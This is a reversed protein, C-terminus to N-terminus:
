PHGQLTPHASLYTCALIPSVYKSHWCSSLIVTTNDSIFCNQPLSTLYLGPFENGVPSAVTDVVIVTEKTEWNCKILQCSQFHPGGVESQLYVLTAGDPSFRPSYISKNAEGVAIYSDSEFEYYYLQSRRNNCFIVGLKWPTSDWGVFVIGSDEPAWIAQGPSIGNPINDLVNIASSHVNITCILPSLHEQHREGWSDRHLFETGREIDDKENRSFYSGRKPQKKEAIYLVQNESNSWCFSSFTGKEHVKGHAGVGELDVSDLKM